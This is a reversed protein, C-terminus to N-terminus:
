PKPNFIILKPIKQINQALQFNKHIHLWKYFVILHLSESRLPVPFKHFNNYSQKSIWYKFNNFANFL